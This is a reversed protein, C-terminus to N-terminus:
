VGTQEEKPQMGQKMVEPGLSQMIADQRARQQEAALEDESKVIDSTDISLAVGARQILKAPKGYTALGQPGVLQSVVNAFMMLRNLDHGRGLAEMGTIISPRVVEKPLAPLRQQQEM